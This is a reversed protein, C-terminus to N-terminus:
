LDTEPPETKIEDKTKIVDSKSQEGQSKNTSSVNTNIAPTSLQAAVTNYQNIMVMAGDMLAQIDRLWQIRAEVNEREQGEIKRLDETSLESLNSPPRPMGQFGFSSQQIDSDSDCTATGMDVNVVNESLTDEEDEQHNGDASVKFERAKKESELTTITHSAILRRKTARRSPATTKDHTLASIPDPFKESPEGNIFHKSCVYFHKSKNRDRLVEENLQYAPRGCLRIWRKCKEPNTPPKPFPIFKIGGTLREPYRSDTNCTGWSCRKVM